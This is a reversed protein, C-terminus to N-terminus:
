TTLLKNTAEEGANFVQKSNTWHSEGRTCLLQSFLYYSKSTTLVSLLCHCHTVTYQVKSLKNNTWHSEGRSCLLQSFLYASRFLYHCKSKKNDIGVTPLSLPLTCCHITGKFANLECLCMFLTREPALVGCVVYREAIWFILIIHQRVRVTMSTQTNTSNEEETTHFFM